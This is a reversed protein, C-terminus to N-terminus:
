LNVTKVYFRYVYWSVRNLLGVPMLRPTTYRM